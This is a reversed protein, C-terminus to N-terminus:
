WEEKPLFLFQMRELIPDVRSSQTSYVEDLAETINRLRNKRLFAEVARTYLQSRSLGLRNALAEAEDFVPNPISIATKM